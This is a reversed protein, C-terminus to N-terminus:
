EGGLVRAVIWAGVMCHRQFFIEGRETRGSVMHLDAIYSMYLVRTRCVAPSKYM